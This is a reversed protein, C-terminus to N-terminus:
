TTSPMSRPRCTTASWAAARAHSMMSRSDPDTQRLQEDPQHTLEERIADMRPMQERLTKIKAQLRETKAAVEVPQTRDATELAALYREISQEIQQQRKDVKGPTFNCNV